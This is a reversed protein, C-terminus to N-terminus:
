ASRPMAEVLANEGSTGDCKWRAQSRVSYEDAPLAAQSSECLARSACLEGNSTARM